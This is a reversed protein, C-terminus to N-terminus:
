YPKLIDCVSIRTMDVTKDAFGALRENLRNLAAIYANTEENYEPSEALGGISVLVAARCKECLSVIDNFVDSKEAGFMANGLLNSVDELLVVADPPLELGSIHTKELTIFGSRARQRRHKEVRAFGEEGCPVMTAIYYLAGAGAQLSVALKEACASKGSGNPGIILATM